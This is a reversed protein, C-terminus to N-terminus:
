RGISSGLPWRGFQEEETTFDGFKNVYTFLSNWIMRRDALTNAYFMAHECRLSVASAGVVNTANDTHRHLGRARQISLMDYLTARSTLSGGNLREHADNSGIFESLDGDCKNIM